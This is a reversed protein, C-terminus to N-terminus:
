TMWEASVIDPQIPLDTPPKISQLALSLSRRVPDSGGACEALDYGLTSRGELHQM